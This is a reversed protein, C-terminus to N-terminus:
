YPYRDILDVQMNELIRGLGYSQQCPFLYLFSCHIVEGLGGAVALSPTEPPLSVRSFMLSLGRTPYWSRHAGFPVLVDRLDSATRNDGCPGLLTSHDFLPVLM